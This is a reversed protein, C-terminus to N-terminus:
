TIFTKITYLLHGQHTLWIAAKNFVIYFICVNYPSFCRLIHPSCLFLSSHPRVHSCILYSASSFLPLFFALHLLCLLLIILFLKKQVVRPITKHRKRPYYLIIQYHQTVMKTIIVRTPLLITLLHVLQSLKYQQWLFM